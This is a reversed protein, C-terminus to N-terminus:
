FLLRRCRWIRTPYGGSKKFLDTRIATGGPGVLLHNSDFFHKRISEAPSLCTPTTVDKKLYLLAFQANPFRNFQQVIYEIGDAKITDDSDLWMIIDGKAYAAAKNRNPFQDINKDNVFLRIRQDKSVYSKAIAVTNDKSCDDVIILEFNAYTSKLVSEIAEAIYKERNYATMLVSVLPTNFNDQM